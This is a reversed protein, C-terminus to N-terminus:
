TIKSSYILLIIYMKIRWSLCCCFIFCSILSVSLCVSLCVSLLILADTIFITNHIENKETEVMIRRICIKTLGFDDGPITENGFLFSYFGCVSSLVGGFINM